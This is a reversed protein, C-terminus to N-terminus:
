DLYRATYGGDFDSIKGHLMNSILPMTHGARGAAAISIFEVEDGAPSTIIIAKQKGQPKGGPHANWGIGSQPRFARAVTLITEEDYSWIIEKWALHEFPISNIKRHLPKAAKSSPNLSESTDSSLGSHKEYRHGKVRKDVSQKTIGIYGDFLPDAEERSDYIWYLKYRPQPRITMKIDEMPNM